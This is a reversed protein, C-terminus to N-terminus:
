ETGLAKGIKQNWLLQQDRNRSFDTEDDYRNQFDNLESTIESYIKKIEAKVNKTFQTEGMRKNMKRGYLESIDFHLQEHGLTVSDCVLPRYWSKDPYFYAGVEYDVKVEDGRVMSSFSYSIGSSTVAAAKTNTPDGKFDKWALRQDARWHIGDPEQLPALLAFLFYVLIIIPKIADM